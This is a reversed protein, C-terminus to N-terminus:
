FKKRLLERHKRLYQKMGETVDISSNKDILLLLENDFIGKSIM